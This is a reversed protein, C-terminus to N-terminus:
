SAQDVVAAWPWHRLKSVDIGYKRPDQAMPSLRELELSNHEACGRSGLQTQIFDQGWHLKANAEDAEWPFGTIYNVVLSLDPVDQSITRVFREFIMQSQIKDIRKQTEPYLSELGVELTRLGGDECLTRALFDRNILKPHLKTCASWSARGMVCKTAIHELRLPTVLSDKICIRTGDNRKVAQDVVSTVAIELPLKVPKPEVAPYTCFKCRGYACGLTSQAPLTVPQDYQILDAEDFRPAVPTALRQGLVLKPAEVGQDHVSNSQSNSMASLSVSDRGLGLQDLLNVFTQEAHGTVFVDAAYGRNSIDQALTDSGLGSMHSGGFVILANPWLKRAAMTIAVSPIVQGAHLLSIGILDPPLDGLKALQESIWAGFDMSRPLSNSSEIINTAALRVDAHDFYCFKIRNALSEKEVHKGDNNTTIGMSVFPLNPLIAEKIFQDELESLLSVNTAGTAEADDHVHSVSRVMMPKDHDGVFRSRYPLNSYQATRSLIGKRDNPTSLLPTTRASIQHRIWQANMDLVDCKHGHRRAASQLLHPGLLPGATYKLFPPVVVLARAM